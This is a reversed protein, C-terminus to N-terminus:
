SVGVGFAFGCIIGVAGIVTSMVKGNIGKKLAMLEIATISVIGTLAIGFAYCDQM